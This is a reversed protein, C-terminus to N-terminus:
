KERIQRYHGKLNEMLTPVMELEGNLAQEIVEPEYQDKYKMVVQQDWKEKELLHDFTRKFLKDQEKNYTDQVTYKFTNYSKQYENFTTKVKPELTHKKNEKYVKEMNLKGKPNKIANGFSQNYDSYNNSWYGKGMEGITDGSVLLGNYSSVMACNGVDSANYGFFGDNTRYILANSSVDQEHLNKNHDFVANFDKNSFKKKSFQKEIVPEENIYEDIKQLRKEKGKRSEINCKKEFGKNFEDLEEKTLTKTKNKSSISSSGGGSRKKLKQTSKRKEKIYGYCELIINFYYEYKKKDKKDSTKDPHYKKVKKRFVQNIHDDTDDSTVGLIFYPDYNEGDITIIDVGM